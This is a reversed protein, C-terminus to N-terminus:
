AMKDKPFFILVLSHKKLVPTKYFPKQEKGEFKRFYCIAGGPRITRMFAELCLNQGFKTRISFARISACWLILDSVWYYGPSPKLLKETFHRFNYKVFLSHM